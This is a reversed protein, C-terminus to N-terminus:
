PLTQSLAHLLAVPREGTATMTVRRTAVDLYTLQVWLREAPLFPAVREAWEIMIMHESVLFDPLGTSDLEFEGALEGAGALRYCDLHYLILQDKARRYENVLTFTPSTVRGNAGWGRGIGRALVTKGAGLDGTLCVLDGSQLLAGLEAGMAETAAESTMTWSATAIVKESM